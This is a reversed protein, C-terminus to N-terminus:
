RNKVPDNTKVISIYVIPIVKKDCNYSKCYKRENWTNNKWKRVPMMNLVWFMLKILEYIKNKVHVKTKM